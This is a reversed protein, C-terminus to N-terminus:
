LYSLYYRDWSLGRPFGLPSMRKYFCGNVADRQIRNSLFNEIWSYIEGRIGYGWLKKLLRKHPIKDSAKTYDLYIIDIDNGQDLADTIEELIELLQTICSKGPIFGHQYPSFRDNQTMHSVIKDRILREM